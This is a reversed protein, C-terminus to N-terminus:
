APNGHVNFPVGWSRKMLFSRGSSFWCNKGRLFSLQFLNRRFMRSGEEHTHTMMVDFILMSDVLKKWGHGKSWGFPPWSEGRNWAWSLFLFVVGLLWSPFFKAYIRAWINKQTYRHTGFQSLQQEAWSKQRTLWISSGSDHCSTEFLFWRPLHRHWTQLEVDKKLVCSPLPNTTQKGLVGAGGGNKLSKKTKHCWTTTSGDTEKGEMLEQGETLQM